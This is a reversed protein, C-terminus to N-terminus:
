EKIRRHGSEGEFSVRRVRAGSLFEAHEHLMTACSMDQALASSSCLNLESHAKLVLKKSVTVIGAHVSVTDSVGRFARAM